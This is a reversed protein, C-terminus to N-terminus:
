NVGGGCVCVELHMIINEKRKFSALSKYHWRSGISHAKKQIYKVYYFLSQVVHLQENEYRKLITCQLQSQKTSITYVFWCLLNIYLKYMWVDKEHYLLFCCDESKIGACTSFLFNKSLTCWRYEPLAHYITWSIPMLTHFM